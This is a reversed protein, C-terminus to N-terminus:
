FINRLKALDQDHHHNHHHKALCYLDIRHFIKLKALHQGVKNSGSLKEVVLCLNKKGVMSFARHHFFYKIGPDDGKQNEEEKYQGEDAPFWM